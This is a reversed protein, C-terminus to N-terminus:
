IPEKYQKKRKSQDKWSKSQHSRYFEDEYLYVHKLKVEHFRKARVKVNYEIAYFSDEFEKRCNTKIHRYTYRPKNEKKSGNNLRHHRHIENKVNRSQCYEEIFKDLDIVYGKEYIKWIANVYLRKYVKWGTEDRYDLEEDKILFSGSKSSFKFDETFYLKIVNIVSNYRMKNILNDIQLFLDKKNLFYYDQNYRELKYM